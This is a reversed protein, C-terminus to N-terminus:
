LPIVPVCITVDFHHGTSGDIEAEPESDRYREYCLGDAPQYGSEPMWVGFVWNWAGAFQQANLRFEAEAYRGAPLTLKGVEGSVEQEAPVPICCSIRLKEPAVSDPDDHYIIVTETEGRQILDRPGAWAFLKGFLKQFLLEDGFYPGTHRVYALTLEPRELVQVTRAALPATELHSMDNRRLSNSMVGSYGDASAHATGDKSDMTSLNRFATPSVRWAVRFARSFAATDTFGCEYAIDTVPRSRQSLLLRAAKELRLRQIFQGPTEGVQAYFIRHFHYRSFCAVKAVRELPLPESIHSEIYDMARNVRRRYETGRENM